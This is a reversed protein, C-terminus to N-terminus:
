ETRQEPEAAAISAQQLKELPFARNLHTQKLWAEPLTKIQLLQDCADLSEQHQGIYYSCISLQFLLGYEDIWDVNFLSDKESPKPISAQAKLTAYARGYQGEQNYLEAIYYLSEPRHPRYTHADLYAAVVIPTPLEFHKLLHAIQLKSWFVEEAWGGMKVRKQFKELAKGPNGADRYSEALYFMYRENNPEKKLGNELLKVNRLFKKRGDKAGAGGDCTIYRVNLLTESTYPQPCDLYEHTVGVWRWPLDGKALQPKLYTFGDSGRWMHYLDQTLPPFQPSGQFELIDDADMFLIYDGKGKAFNFAESRNEGFNVWPRQYLEGPIEKLSERILKMTDDTSGTDVIVWYDIVPKVSDLCRRIVESENKVIMNLCIKPKAWLCLPLLLLLIFRAM